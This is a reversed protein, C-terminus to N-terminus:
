PNPSFAARRGSGAAVRFGHVLLCGLAALSLWKWIEPASWPLVSASAVGDVGAGRLDSEARADPQIAVGEGAGAYVGAGARGAIEIVPDAVGALWRLTNGVFIPFAVRRVLDSEEYDFGVWVVRQGGVAGADRSMILPDDGSMAVVQWGDAIAPADLAARDIRVPELTVARLLPSGADVDTVPPANMWQNGRESEAGRWILSPVPFRAAEFDEPIWGDFVVVDFGSLFEERWLEPRLIEFEFDANAAVARELFSDRESVVLVRPVGGGPFALAAVDDAAVADADGTVKATLVSGGEPMVDRLPMRFARQVSDGPAVESSVADVLTADRYLEIPIARAEDSFNTAEVFVEIEGPVGTPAVGLATIARNAVAEGVVTIGVSADEEVEPIARDTIVAIRADPHQARLSMIEQVLDGGAETVRADALRAIGDDPVPSIPIRLPGPFVVVGVPSGSRAERLRDRAVALGREWATGGDPGAAQMRLRADLLVITPQPRMWGSFEPRALAVVLLLLVLLHFLLLPWDHLRWPGLRSAANAPQEPWVLVSPVVRRVRRPRLLHLMVIVPALALGWLAAPFLLSM